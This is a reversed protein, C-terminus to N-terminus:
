HLHGKRKNGRLEDGLYIMTSDEFAELVRHRNGMQICVIDGAEAEFSEGEILVLLKGTTIFYYEDGDHYHYDMEIEGKPFSMIGYDALRSWDPKEAEWRGLKVIKVPSIGFEEPGDNFPIHGKRKRGKLEDYIWVLNLDELSKLIQHKGGMPICVCDGFGIDYISGELLLRGKGKTIIFYEDCDHYHYDEEKQGKSLKYLGYASFKSWEPKQTEWNAPKVVM